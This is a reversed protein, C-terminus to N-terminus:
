AIPLLRNAIRDIADALTAGLERWQEPPGDVPDAIEDEPRAGIMEARSRAEAVSAVWARLAMHRGPPNADLWRVFQPVTFARPWLAPDAAVLERLHSRSMTLVLDWEGLRRMDVRRSVHGSMDFGQEAAVLVGNPPMARGGELLGASAFSFPRGAFRRRALAEALVSRCQNATCVFLIRTADRDADPGRPEDDGASGAM